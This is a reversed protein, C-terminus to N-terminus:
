NSENNSIQKKSDNMIEIVKEFAEQVVPYSLIPYHEERKQKMKKGAAIAKEISNILNDFDKENPKNIISKGLKEANKIIDKLYSSSKSTIKSIISSKQRSKIIKVLKGCLTHIDANLNRTSANTANYINCADILNNHFLKAKTDGEVVYGNKWVNVLNELDKFIKSIFNYASHSVKYQCERYDDFNKKFIDYYKRVKVDDISISALVDSVAGCASKFMSESRSEFILDESLFRSVDIVFRGAVKEGLIDSLGFILKIAEYKYNELQEKTLEKEM